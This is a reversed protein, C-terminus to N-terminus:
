IMRLYNNLFVLLGISVDFLLVLYSKKYNLAFLLAFLMYNFGHVIRFPHWYAKGGFGGITKNRNYQNIFSIGILLSIFSIIYRLTKNDQQLVKYSGYVFLLRVVLCVFIFLLIRNITKM